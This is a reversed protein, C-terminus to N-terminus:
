LDLTWCRHVVEHCLRGGPVDALSILDCLVVPRVGKVCALLLAGAVDARGVLPEPGKSFTQLARHFFSALLAVLTTAYLLLM